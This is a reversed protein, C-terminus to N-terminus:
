AGAWSDTSGLRCFRSPWREASPFRSRKMSSGWAAAASRACSASTAWAAASRPAPLAAKAAGLTMAPCACSSSPLWYQRLVSDIEPHRRAYDDIDPQEGRNLRQVFEDAVQGVLAEVSLEGTTALEAM